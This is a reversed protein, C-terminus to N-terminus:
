EIVMQQQLPQAVLMQQQQLPQELLMQQQQQQEMLVQQPGQQQAFLLQQAQDQSLVLQQQTDPAPLPEQPLLYSEGGMSSIQISPRQQDEGLGLIDRSIEQWCWRAATSTLSSTSSGPSWCWSSTM